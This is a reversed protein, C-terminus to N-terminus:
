SCCAGTSDLSSPTSPVGCFCSQLRSACCLNSSVQKQFTHRLNETLRLVDPACDPSKLNIILHHVVRELSRATCVAEMLHSTTFHLEAKVEQLWLLLLLVAAVRLHSGTTAPSALLWSMWAAAEGSTQWSDAIFHQQLGRGWAFLCSGEGQLAEQVHTAVGNHNQLKASAKQSAPIAAVLQERNGATQSPLL